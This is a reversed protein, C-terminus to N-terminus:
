TNEVKQLTLRISIMISQSKCYYDNSRVTSSLKMTVKTTRIQFKIEFKSGRIQLHLILEFYPVLLRGHTIHRKIDQLKRRARPTIDHVVETLFIGFHMKEISRVFIFRCFASEACFDEYNSKIDLHPVGRLAM